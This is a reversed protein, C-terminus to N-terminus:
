PHVTHAHRRRTRWVKRLHRRCSTPCRSWSRTRCPRRCPFRWQEGTRATTSAHAPTPTAHTDTNRHTQTDTHRHTQTHRHGPKTTQADQSGDNHQLATPAMMPPPLERAGSAAGAAAGRAVATRRLERQHRTCVATLSHRVTRCKKKHRSSSRQQKRQL